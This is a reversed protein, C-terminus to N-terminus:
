FNTCLHCSSEMAQMLVICKKSFTLIELFEIWKMCSNLRKKYKLFYFLSKEFEELSSTSGPYKDSRNGFTRIVHEHLEAPSNYKDVRLM